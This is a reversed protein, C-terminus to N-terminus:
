GLPEKYPDISIKPTQSVRNNPLQPIKKLSVDIRKPAIHTTETLKQEVINKTQIPATYKQITNIPAIEPINSQTAPNQTPIIPTKQQNTSFTPTPNEIEWLISNKDLVEEKQEEGGESMMAKRIKDFILENVDDAIANAKVEDLNLNSKLNDVFNEAPELGIMVLMTELELTSIQDLMLHHKERLKSIESTIDISAIVERVKKPLSNIQNQIEKETEPNM